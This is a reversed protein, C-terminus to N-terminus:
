AAQRVRRYSKLLGGLREFRLVEGSEDQPHPDIMRGDLGEHPREHHYYELFERLVYELQAQSTLIMRDLCEQKITQVFREAYANLNPSQKPTKVPEVGGAKLIDDFNRTFLSDRDHILYRKDKLFGDECDTLNRAMQSMWPGDPDIKVGGIEVRRTAIDIVFLVMCRVLGRPTLLEVSFLDTAALVNLHSRIFQNWTTKRDREPKPCIGHDDLIRKVTSRGVSYGLYLMYNHIRGFGWSSNEGALRLVTDIIEQSVKPRGGKRNPSGDYKAAILQRYWKLLTDPSFLDTVEGLLRRGVSWGKAALRRRQADTLRVRRCGYRDHLQERLVRNEEQLYAVVQRAQDDMLGSLMAM